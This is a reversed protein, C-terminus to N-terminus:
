DMWITTIADEDTALETVPASTKNNTGTKGTSIYEQGDITVSFIRGSNTDIEVNKNGTNKGNTDIVTLNM